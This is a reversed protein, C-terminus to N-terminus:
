RRRLSQKRSAASALGGIRGAEARKEIRKAAEKLEVDIRKHRWNGGKFLDHMTPKIEAWQAEPLHAIRALRADDHPLKGDKWYQLMLLLYAGHELPTLHTTDALYNDVYFPMWLPATM